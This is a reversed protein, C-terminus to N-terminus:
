NDRLKDLRSIFESETLVTGRSDRKGISHILKYGKARVCLDDRFIENQDFVAQYLRDLLEQYEPSNRPYAVGQWYLTQTSRWDQNEGANKANSGFLM